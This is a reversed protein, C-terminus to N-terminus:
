PDRSINWHHPIYGRFVAFVLQKNDILQEVVTVSVLPAFEGRKRQKCGVSLVQRFNGTRIM